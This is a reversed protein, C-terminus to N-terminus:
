GPGSLEEMLEAVERAESVYAPDEMLRRAEVALNRRRHERDAAEEIAQRV